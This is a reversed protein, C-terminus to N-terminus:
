RLPQGLIKVFERVPSPQPEGRRTLKDRGIWDEYYYEKALLAKGTTKSQITPGQIDTVFSDILRSLLM